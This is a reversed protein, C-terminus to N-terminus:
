PCCGRTAGALSLEADLIERTGKPGQLRLWVPGQQPSLEIQFRLFPCCKRENSVFRSVPDFSAAPFRFAYGDDLEVRERCQESFLERILRFHAVRESASIADPVCVLPASEVHDKQM